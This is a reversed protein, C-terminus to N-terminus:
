KLVDMEADRQASQGNQGNPENSARPVSRPPERERRPEREREEQRDSQFWSAFPRDGDGVSGDRNSSRGRPTTFGPPQESM